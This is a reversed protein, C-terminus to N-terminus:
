WRGGGYGVPRSFRQEMSSQPKQVPDGNPSRTPPPQTGSDDVDLGGPNSFNDKVYDEATQEDYFPGYTTADYHDGYENSALDLYWEKDTALYIGAYRQMSEALLAERIIRRLQQRTIEM